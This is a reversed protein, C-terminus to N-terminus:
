PALEDGGGDGGNFLSREITLPLYSLCELIYFVFFDSYKIDISISM